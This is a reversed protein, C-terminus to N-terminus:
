YHNVIIAINYVIEGTDPQEPFQQTDPNSSDVSVDDEDDAPAIYFFYQTLSVITYYYFCNITNYVRNLTYIRM